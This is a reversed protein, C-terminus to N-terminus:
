RAKITKLQDWVSKQRWEPAQLSADWISTGIKGQAVIWGLQEGVTHNLWTGKYSPVGIMLKEPAAAAKGVLTEYDVGMGSQEYGMSTIGDVYPFLDPWWNWNPANWQGHFSDVTLVKGAPKLAASLTKVLQLYQLRDDETAEVIGELDLDVGDLGRTNVQNILDQAFAAGNTKFSRQAESWNWADNVHNHVCLLIKVGKQRGWDKFWNVNEESAQLRATPGDALWFQLGLYSLGSGMSSGGFDASLQQKSENVYYTPVWSMTHAGTDGNGIPAGAQGVSGGNTIPAGATPSSGGNSPGSGAAPAGGAGALQQTAGTGATVGTGSAGGADRSGDDSSCAVTTLLGFLSVVALSRM